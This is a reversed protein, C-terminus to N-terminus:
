NDCAGTMLCTTFPDIDRGDVVGDANLDAACRLDIDDSGELLLEVMENLDSISRAGDANLDGPARGITDGLVEIAFNPTDFRCWDCGQGYFAAGPKWGFWARGWRWTGSSQVTNNYVGVLYAGVPLSLPAPLSLEYAYENNIFFTAGTAQRTSAVSPYSAILTGPLGHDDAFFEVTFDDPTEMDDDYGGRVRIGTIRSPRLLILDEAIKNVGFAPHPDLDSLNALARLNIPQNLLVEPAPGEELDIEDPTDNANCDGSSRCASVRVNDVWWGTLGFCDDKGFRFRLQITEGPAVLSALEVVSTGWSGGAGTFGLRGGLPNSSGQEAGALAFNYGNFRFAPQPVQQWPGGDVSLEVLGGDYRPETEMFHTFELTLTEFDVPTQMAPSVLDHVSAENLLDCDGVNRDEIFWANGTRGFPLDSVLQWDYPTPPTSNSVTWGGAGSEFDDAFVDDAQSCRSPATSDLPPETQGCAGPTDMEVARLAKDVQDADVATFLVGTPLGTAPDNPMTGVLDSAALNFALYADQFDSGVTLYTTLARYWVAAAKPAGIGTITHGNFSKGDCLMAFAHNPTGSGSHVGGNDPISCVQLPDNATQPNQFCNPNWMDRFPGNMSPADEGILWRVGDTLAPAFSCGSTRLLNPSDLGTGSAHPEWPTAGVSGAGAAGGNYLDVLEGFVDSFSENLQGSQNQYLLNASHATVGHTWEHAVLDDATAGTCFLLQGRVFDYSANPCPIVGIDNVNVTAIVEGGADDIGNRGFANAFFARADGMYDYAEDVDEVGSPADGEQRASAGPLTSQGTGDYVQRENATCVLSWWDLLAGRRADVFAGYAGGDPAVLTLRYALQPGIQPDGYWGPDVIVLEADRLEFDRGNSGRIGEMAEDITIRPRTELSSPIPYFRGTAAHFTGDKRYHIRLQGTFVPVGRWVQQFLEHRYGLIDFQGGSLRLESQPATVGFVRAVIPPVVDASGTGAANQNIPTTALSQVLIPCGIRHSKVVRFQQGSESIVAGHSSLAISLGALQIAIARVLLRRRATERRPVM